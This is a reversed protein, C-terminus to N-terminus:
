WNTLKVFKGLKRIKGIQQCCIESCLVMLNNNECKVSMECCNWLAGALKRPIKSPLLAHEFLPM